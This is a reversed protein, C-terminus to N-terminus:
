NNEKFTIIIDLRNDRINDLQEIHVHDMFFKLVEEEFDPDRKKYVCAVYDRAEEKLRRVVLYSKEAKPNDSLMIRNFDISLNIQKAM